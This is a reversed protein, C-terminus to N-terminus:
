NISSFERPLVIVEESQDLMKLYDCHVLKQRIMNNRHWSYKQGSRYALQENLISQCHGNLTNQLM